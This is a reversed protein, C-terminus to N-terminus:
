ADASVKRLIWGLPPLQLFIFLSDIIKQQRSFPSFLFILAVPAAMASFNVGFFLFTGLHFILRLFGFIKHLDLRFAFYFSVVHIWITGLYSLFSLWPYKFFADRWPSFQSYFIAERASINTLIWQDLQCDLDTNTACHVISAIKWYGSMTYFTCVMIQSFWVGMIVQHKFLRKKGHSTADLNVVSFVFSIWMFGHNNHAFHGDSNILAVIFFIALSHLIRFFRQEAYLFSLLSFLIWTAM